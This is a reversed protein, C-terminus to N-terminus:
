NAYWLSKFNEYSNGIHLSDFAKQLKHFGFQLKDCKLKDGELILIVIDLLKLLQSGAAIARYNDSSTIDGLNDKLLPLLSCVLIFLHM